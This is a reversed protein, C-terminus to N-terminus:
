AEALGPWFTHHARNVTEGDLRSIEHHAIKVANNVANNVARNAVSNVAFSTATNVARNGHCKVASNVVSNM